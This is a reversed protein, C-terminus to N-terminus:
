LARWRSKSLFFGHKPNRCTLGSERSTCKLKGFKISTGYRLVKAGMDLGIFPGIDGACVIPEARGTRGLSVRNDAYEGAGKCDKKPPPPKLGSQIGCVVNNFSPDDSWSCVINASPTKFYGIKAAATAPASAGAVILAAIVLLSRM